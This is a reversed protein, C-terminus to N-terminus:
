VRYIGLAHSFQRVEGENTICKDEKDFVKSKTWYQKICWQICTDHCVSTINYDSVLERLVHEYVQM